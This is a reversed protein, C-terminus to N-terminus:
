ENLKTELEQIRAGLNKLINQSEQVSKELDNELNQIKTKAEEETKTLKQEL